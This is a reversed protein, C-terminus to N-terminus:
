EYLAKIGQQSISKGSSWWRGIPLFLNLIEFLYIFLEEAVLDSAPL